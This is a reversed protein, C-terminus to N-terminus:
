NNYLFTKILVKKIQKKKATVAETQSNDITQNHNEAQNNNVTQNINEAELIPALLSSASKEAHVSTLSCSNQLSNLSSINEISFTKM